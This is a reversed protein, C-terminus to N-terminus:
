LGLKKLHICVEMENIPEHDDEADEDNDTEGNAKAEEDMKKQEEEEKLRKEEDQAEKMKKEGESQTKWAAALEKVDEENDTILVNDFITGAKM